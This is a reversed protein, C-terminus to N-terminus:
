EVSPNAVIETGALLGNLIETKTIGKAGIMIPILQHSQTKEVFTKGDKSVIASNPVDIVGDKRLTELTILATMNPKISPPLNDVSVRATYTVVGQTTTGVTDIAEVTGSFTQDKLADFTISARQGQTIQAAYDESIDANIYPNALNAIIFVSANVPVQDGNKNLLNVVTGSVPAIVTVSKTEAYAQQSASLVAQDKALVMQQNKYNAEAALWDDQATTFEPLVRNSTNPTSDSNQYTGNTALNFYKNWASFMVSQLTYLGAKDAQYVSNTAVYNAYATKQQDPTATSQVHFVPDGKVVQSTNHVFIQDIIGTTPSTVPMQSATMYTGSVQITDVLDEQKVVYILDTNPKQLLFVRALLFLIIIGFCIFYFKRVKMFALTRSM